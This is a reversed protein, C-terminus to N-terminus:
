LLISAILSASIPNRCYWYALKELLELKPPHFPFCCALFPMKWKVRKRIVLALFPLYAWASIPNRCYWYALIELLEQRAAPDLVAKSSLLFTAYSCNSGSISLPNVFYRCNKGPTDCTVNVYFSQQCHRSSTFRINTKCSSHFIWNRTIHTKKSWAEIIIGALLVTIVIFPKWLIGIHQFYKTVMIFM